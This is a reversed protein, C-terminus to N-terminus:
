HMSTSNVQRNKACCDSLLSVDPSWGISGSRRSELGPEEVTLNPIQPRDSIIVQKESSIVIGLTM